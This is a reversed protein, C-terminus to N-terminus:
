PERVLRLGIDHTRSVPLGSFRASSRLNVAKGVWSGGRYVRYQGSEPGKPANVPSSSYYTAGYWDEVWEWVNGHMDYLGWQNPKKLGVEHASGHYGLNGYWAYDALNKEDDGFSYVTDSGARAAYEWEAETPLRYYQGGEKENLRKIFAHADDWSVKEVPKYLGKAKSPNNGMIDEWQKQTVETEGLYFPKEICVRHNPVEAESSEKFKKNQGMQFCGPDIKVFTMGMFSKSDAAHVLQTLNLLLILVSLNKINTKYM